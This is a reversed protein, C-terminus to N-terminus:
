EEDDIEGYAAIAAKATEYDFGKGLLYRYAKALTERDATKGRM